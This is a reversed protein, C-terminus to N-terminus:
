GHTPAEGAAALAEPAPALGARAELGDLLTKVGALDLGEHYVGDILLVPATGCAALCEVLQLTFLGRPDTGAAADGLQLRQRLYAIIEAGGTVHCSLTRCASIVHRGTPRRHFMTYFSVVDAVHIRPVQLVRAVEDVVEPSTWGLRRQALHLLPITASLSDPYRGLLLDIEQREEPTFSFAM